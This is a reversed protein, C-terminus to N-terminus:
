EMRATERMRRIRIQAAEKSLQKLEDIQQKTPKEPM